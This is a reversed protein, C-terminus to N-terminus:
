GLPACLLEEWAGVQAQLPMVAPGLRQQQRVVLTLDARSACCSKTGPARSSSRLTRPSSAHLRGDARARLARRLGGANWGPKSEGRWEADVM